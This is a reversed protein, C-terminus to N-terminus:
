EHTSPAATGSTPDEADIPLKGQTLHRVLDIVQKRTEEVSGTNDIVHDAM